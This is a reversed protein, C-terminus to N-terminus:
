GVIPEKVYAGIFKEENNDNIEKMRERRDAPKNPAVLNKKKLYNLCAGELYKSSYVFDEYPVHGTHCIARCLEIFQLKKDMEVVLEVDVINYDIYKNIDEKFLDDLSGKYELKGRGVEKTAIHNLTYSAELGYNYKKYLTIYDLASVGAFSWRNRYPSYFCEGIPSLRTANNRGLVNTIRNFLYPVDFQDINWGTIITPRITEYITLFAHLLEKENHYSRVVRNGTETNKVKGLKDLVLAYYTDTASDHLAIATIENKAKQTDPLGTIMEVEIDFTM